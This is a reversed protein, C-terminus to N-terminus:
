QSKIYTPRLTVRVMGLANFYCASVNFEVYTKM